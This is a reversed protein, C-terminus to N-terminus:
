LCLIIDTMNLAYLANCKGSQCLTARDSSLCDYLKWNFCNLADVFACQQSASNEIGSSQQEFNYYLVPSGDPWRAILM